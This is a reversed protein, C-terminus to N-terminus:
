RQNLRGVVAIVGTVVAAAAATLLLRGASRRSTQGSLPPVRTALGLDDPLKYEPPVTQRASQAKERAETAWKAPDLVYGAQPTGRFGLMVCWLYAETAESSQKERAIEAQQWFRWARENAGGYLFPELSQRAWDTRWPSDPDSIFLEDLWCALAYRVGMFEPYPIPLPRPVNPAYEPHGAPGAALLDVLQGRATALRPPDDSRLRDRIDLGAALVALTHTTLADM